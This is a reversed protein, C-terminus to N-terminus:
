FSPWALAAVIQRIVLYGFYISLLTAWLRQRLSLPTRQDQGQARFPRNFSVIRLAATRDLRGLAALLFVVLLAGTVALTITWFFWRIVM